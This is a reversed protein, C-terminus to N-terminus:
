VPTEEDPFATLARDADAMTKEALEIEFRAKDEWDDQRTADWEPQVRGHTAKLMREREATFRLKALARIRRERYAGAEARVEELGVSPDCAPSHVHPPDFPDPDAEREDILANYEGILRRQQEYRAQTTAQEEGFLLALGKRTKTNLESWPPPIEVKLPRAM